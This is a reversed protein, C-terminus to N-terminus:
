KILESKVNILSVKFNDKFLLVSFINYEKTPVGNMIYKFEIKCHTDKLEASLNNYKGFYLIMTLTSTKTM